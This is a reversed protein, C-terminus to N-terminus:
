DPILGYRKCAEVFCSCCRTRLGDTTAVSPDFERRSKTEGCVHCLKVAHEDVDM